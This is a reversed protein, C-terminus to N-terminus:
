AAQKLQEELFRNVFENVSMKRKRARKRIEAALPPELAMPEDELLIDFHVDRQIDDYDALCHTSWFEDFEEVTKFREPIPDRVLNNAGM